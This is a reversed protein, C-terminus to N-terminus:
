SRYIRTQLRDLLGPALWNAWIFLRNLLRVTITARPHDVARVIAAAVQESTM